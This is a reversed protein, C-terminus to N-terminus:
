LGEVWKLLQIAARKWEVHNQLHHGVGKVVKFTVGDWDHSEDDEVRADCESV